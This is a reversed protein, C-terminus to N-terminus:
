DYLDNLNGLKKELWSQYHSVLAYSYADKDQRTNEPIDKIPLRFSGISNKSRLDNMTMKIRGQSDIDGFELQFYNMAPPLYRYYTGTYPHMNRKDNNVNVCVHPNMLFSKLVDDLDVPIPHPGDSDIGDSDVHPFHYRENVEWDNCKVKVGVPMGGDSDAGDSDYLKEVKFNDTLFTKVKGILSPEYYQAMLNEM